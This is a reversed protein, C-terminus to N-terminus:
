ELIQIAQDHANKIIEESKLRAIHEVDRMHDQADIHAQRLFGKKAEEAEQMKIAYETDITALKRMLERREEIIHSLRRGIAYYFITFLLGVNILQAIILSLSIDTM